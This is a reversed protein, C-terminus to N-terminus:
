FPRLPLPRRRRSRNQPVSSKPKRGGFLALEFVKFYCDVHDFGIQRLWRCQTEVPVLKNAAKDPRHFYKSAIAQRSKRTGARQHHRWLSEIFYEDFIRGVAPSPSAVHELNLFWGGPVLLALLERYLRRKRGDPQHHISFGSVIADFPARSAVSEVWGLQGYDQVIFAVRRRPTTLKRRAAAIMTESFDLFTGRAQPWRGLLARGLVGDGCGLDLFARVNRSSRELLWVILELQHDACPIAGRVGELYQKGVSESKWVKDSCFPNM